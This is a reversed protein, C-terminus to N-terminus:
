NLPPLAYSSLKVGTKNDAMLQQLAYENKFLIVPREWQDKVVMANFIRGLKDVDEWDGEVWRAVSYGMHDLKTEVKYENLMRHQVVEFQLEGVAALIPDTIFDDASYLVQVAGEGLLGELGKLFGKRAGPSAKLYAFLTPSFSPIPPFRAAAGNFLTDGIAFAGPNTLGIVDGAFSDDVIAREDGMMKQPRSATVVRGTRAVQLKMGKEFKGSWVRVYAVKDRHRPDMNAQLKFVQGSFSQSVPEIAEGDITASRTPSQALEIFSELFDQVGFTSMASGFYMPTLRGDLVKQMDLEAGLEDLLEIEELVQALLDADIADVVAPDDEALEVRSSGKKGYLVYKRGVRDFIGAFRSGSGVPWNMPFSALGFEAELQDIIELPDLAPRDLKNVFTFIPLNRMRAVEFLKRTQAEIGKAADVLMVTNDAASLTRYTDESFDQHGPTDLINIYKGGYEFTLATSTISIGRDKEMQMWDSKAHRAAKRAKVEGAQNIAGGYYLLKETLTTKGADPHSIIAFNRRRSVERQQEQLLKADDAGKKKSAGADGGEAAEEAQPEEEREGEEAEATAAEESVARVHARRTGLRGRCALRLASCAPATM